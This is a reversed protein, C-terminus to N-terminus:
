QNAKHLLQIAEQDDVQNFTKYFQGVSMFYSPSLLCVVEDAVHKILALAEPSAVPLAVIITSPNYCKILEITALLTHGTAVGDDVVIVTKHTIHFPPMGARYHLTRQAIIVRIKKIEQTIYEQLEPINKFREDIFVHKESVAGIATEPNFPAGIKKSFIIDLPLNLRQALVYGLELGGRPIALIVTNSHSKYQILQRALQEAADFRNEFM